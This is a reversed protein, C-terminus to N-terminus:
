ITKLYIFTYCLNLRVSCVNMVQKCAEFYAGITNARLCFGETQRYAHCSIVDKQPADENM